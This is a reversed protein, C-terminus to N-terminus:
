RTRAAVAAARRVRRRRAMFLLLSQGYLVIPHSGVAFHFLGPAAPTRPGRLRVSTCSAPPACKGPPRPAKCAANPAAIGVSCGASGIFFVAAIIALGSEFWRLGSSPTSTATLTSSACVLAMAVLNIRSGLRNQRLASKATEHQDPPIPDNRRLARVLQRRETPEMGLLPSPQAWRAGRRAWVWRVGLACVPLVLLLFVLLVFVASPRHGTVLWAALVGFGGMALVLVAAFGLWQSYRRWVTRHQQPHMKANTGAKCWLM